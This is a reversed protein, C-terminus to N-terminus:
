NILGSTIVEVAFCGTNRTVFLSNFRIAPLHDNIITVIIPGNSAKKNIIDINEAL